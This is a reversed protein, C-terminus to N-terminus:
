APAASVKGRGRFVKAHTGKQKKGSSNSQSGFVAPYSHRAMQSFRCPLLNQKKSMDIGLYNCANLYDLYLSDSINQKDIYDFYTNLKWGPFLQRIPNFRTEREFQKKRFLFHKVEKLPRDTKYAERITTINYTNGYPLALEKQSPHVM